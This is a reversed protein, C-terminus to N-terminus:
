LGEQINEEITEQSKRKRADVCEEPGRNAGDFQEGSLTLSWTEYCM